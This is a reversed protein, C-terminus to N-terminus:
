HAEVASSNRTHHPIQKNEALTHTTAEKTVTVSAPTSPIQGNSTSSRNAYTQISENTSDSLSLARERKAAISQAKATLGGKETHGHARAELSHLNDAEAKTVTGEEIKPKIRALEKQLEPELEPQPAHAAGIAQQMKSVIEQTAKLLDPTVSNPNSDVAAKLDNVLVHQTHRAEHVMHPQGAQADPQQLDQSVLALSEVASVISASRRDTVEVQESLRRADEPTISLPDTRLKDLVKKFHAYQNSSDLSLVATELHESSSSM